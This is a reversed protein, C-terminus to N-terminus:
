QLGQLWLPSQHDGTHTHPPPPPPPKHHTRKVCQNPSRPLPLRTSRWQVKQQLCTHQGLRNAGHHCHHRWSKGDREAGNSKILFNSPASTHPSYPPQIVPQANEQLTFHLERKFDGIGEFRYPYLHKLDMANDMHQPSPSTATQASCHITM